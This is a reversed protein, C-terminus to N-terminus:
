KTVWRKVTDSTFGSLLLRVTMASTVISICTGVQLLGVLSLVEAGVGQLSSVAQSKLWDLSANVGTYTVLSVGLAVLMRLVFSGAINILVGGLAALFIPM